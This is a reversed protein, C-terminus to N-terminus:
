EVQDRKGLSIGGEGDGGEDKPKDNFVTKRDSDQTPEKPEEALASM